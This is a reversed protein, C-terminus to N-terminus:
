RTVEATGLGLVRGAREVRDWLARDGGHRDPHAAAKAWRLQRDVTDGRRSQPTLERLLALAEDRTMHPAASGTGAPLAKWGTYQEGRRTVGYRDVARLAELALAIARVNAQWGPMTGAWLRDYADTAYTLPGHRSDFALRVGPHGVKADARLMGDLRVDGERVDVQLVVNRADLHELERGLLDLTGAWSARFIASSARPDTNGETWPGRPRFTYKV